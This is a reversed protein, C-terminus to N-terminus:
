SAFYHEICITTSLRGARCSFSSKCNRYSIITSRRVIHSVFPVSRCVLFTIKSLSTDSESSALSANAVTFHM